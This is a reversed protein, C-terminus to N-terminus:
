SLSTRYVERREWIRDRKHVLRVCAKFRAEEDDDSHPRKLASVHNHCELMIKRAEDDDYPLGCDEADDDDVTVPDILEDEDSSEGKEALLRRVSRVRHGSVVTGRSNVGYAHEAAVVEGSAATGSTERFKFM